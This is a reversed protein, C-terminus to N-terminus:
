LNLYIEGEEEIIDYIKLSPLELDSIPDGSVISYINGCSACELEEGEVNSESLFAQDTLLGIIVKGLKCGEAIINLHGQHVLDASMGIYVIKSKKNETM